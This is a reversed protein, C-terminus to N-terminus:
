RSHEGRSRFRAATVILTQRETRSILGDDHWQTSLTTVTDVFDGHDDFPEEYELVDLFTCGDDRAANVVGTDTGDLVIAEDATHTGCPLDVTYVTHESRSASIVVVRARRDDLAAPEVHVFAGAHRSEATVAPFEQGPDLPVVYETTLPDFGTVTVGDVQVTSALADDSEPEAMVLSDIWYQGPAARWEVMAIEDVAHRFPVDTVLSEGDLALDFTQGGTDTALKVVHWQNASYTGLHRLQTGDGNILRITGDGVFWLHMAQEASDESTLRVIFPADTQGARFRMLYDTRGDRAPLPARVVYNTSTATLALSNRGDYGGDEVVATGRTPTAETVSDPTQGIPDDIFTLEHLQPPVRADIFAQIASQLDSIAALVRGETAGSSDAVSEAATIEALLDARAQAPYDGAARGKTSTEYRAMAVAIEDRLETRTQPTAPTPEGAEIYVDSFVAESLVTSDASASWIGVQVSGSLDLEREGMSVWTDGDLYSSTVTGAQYTLRMTAPFTTAPNGSINSTSGGDTSRIGVPMAGAPRIRPSATAADAAVDNRIMVGGMSFLHAQRVSRVTATVSFGDPYDALDLERHVFLVGDETGWADRANSNLIWEGDHHAVYTEPSAWTGVDTRNWGAPLATDEVVAVLEQTQRVVGNWTASVVIPAAGPGVATVTGDAAVTAVDPERSTFEYTVENPDMATGDSWTATTDLTTTTGIDLGLGSMSASVSEIVRDHVRVTTEGSVSSAGASYTATVTATGTGVADIRGQSDVTIVDDDSVNFTVEGADLLHVTGSANTAVPRLDAQQGIALDAASTRLEISSVEDGVYVPITRQETESGSTATVTVATTGQAQGSVQGQSDVTAIAADASSYTVNAGHLLLGVADRAAVTLPVSGGIPVDARTPNGASSVEIRDLPGAEFSAHDTTGIRTYDAQQFGLEFAPSQPALVFDEGARDRFLPDAAVSSQDYRSDLFFRWDDLDSVGPIGRVAYDGDPDYFLNFDSALLNEEEFNQFEYFAAGPTEVVIINRYYEHDVADNNGHQSLRMGFGSGYTGDQVLVNDTVVNGPGKAHIPGYEPGNALTDAGFVLNQRVITDQVNNDLYVGFAQGKSSRAAVMDHIRNAEVLNGTGATTLTISGADDSDQLVRSIDNYRILNDRSTLQDSVHPGRNGKMGIGYRPMDHIVNHEIANEGSQHLFIGGGHGVLVGGHHIYNDAVTNRKNDYVQNGSEDFTGSITGMLLVGHYGFGSVENGSVANDTASLHMTVASFGANELVNDAITVNRANELYILAPTNAPAPRNWEIDHTESFREAFRSTSVELGTLSVNQVPQDPGSGSLEFVRDTTPATITLEEVASEPWYYLYGALEDLFFEGPSDLAERFGQLYYRGGGSRLTESELTVLNQSPDISAIPATDAFFPTSWVVAQAGPVVQWDPLDGADTMFSTREGGGHGHLYGVDPYRAKTQRAGDVFLQDFRWQGSAVEPLSTRVIEPHDTGEWSGAIERAGHIRAVEGPASTWLVQHGDRGSDREDLELPEDRYYDGGHVIVSVDGDMGDSISGRVLDRAQDLTAVPDTATGSAADDGDTAVHVEEVGSAQLDAGAMSATAASFTLALITASALTTRSKM